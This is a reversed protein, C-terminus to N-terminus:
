PFRMGFVRRSGGRYASFTRRSPFRGGFTRRSPFKAGFTRRTESNASAHASENAVPQVPVIKM